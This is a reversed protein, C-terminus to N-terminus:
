EMELGSEQFARNLLDSLHLTQAWQLLYKQDLNKAQVKLIGLVDRWQRDSIEDGKRYWDLKQIIIDEPTAISIKKNDGDVAISQRRQMETQNIPNSDLVFIDVKIMTELHIINFSSPHAVAQTIDEQDFYFHNSLALTFAEIHNPQLAVVMDIDQTARLEGYISSAISGGVFYDIDLSELIDSVWLAVRVPESIVDIDKKKQTGGM